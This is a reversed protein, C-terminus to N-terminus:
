PTLSVTDGVSIGHKKIMGANLEVVSTINYRSSIVSEDRPKAQEHLHVIVGHADIFLMDLPILTNRMWMHVMRPPEGYLFVMGADEPLSTRFMLGKAQAAHTRAVEVTFTIPAHHTTVTLTASEARAASGMPCLVLWLLM